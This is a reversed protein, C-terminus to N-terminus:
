VKNSTKSLAAIKEAFRGLLWEAKCHQLHLSSKFDNLPGNHKEFFSELQNRDVLSYIWSLLLISIDRLQFQKNPTIATIFKSHCKSDLGQFILESIEGLTVLPARKGKHFYALEGGTAQGNTWELKGYAFVVPCSSAAELDAAKEIEIATPAAGKVELFIGAAPLYFDPKYWGHRTEVRRSEYLWVVGIADMVAAWQTESHSRM